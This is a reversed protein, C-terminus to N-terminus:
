SSRFGFAVQAGLHRIDQSRPDLKAPVFTPSVQVTVQFPPPPTPLSLTRSRKAHVIWTRVATVKTIGFVLQSNVERYGVRGIVVRV